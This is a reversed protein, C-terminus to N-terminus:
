NFKENFPYNFIRTIQETNNLNTEFLPYISQKTIEISYGEIEGNKGTQQTFSVSAGGDSGFCFTKGQFGRFVVIYKNTNALLLSATKEADLSRIFTNLSQKYIGSENTESFRSESTTEIHIFKDNATQISEVFCVNYNADDKFRYKLFDRIDLLLIEAIGGQM